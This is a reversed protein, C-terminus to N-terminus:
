PHPAYHHFPAVPVKFPLLCDELGAAVEAGRRLAVELAAGPTLRKLTALMRLRGAAGACMSGCSHACDRMFRCMWPRVTGGPVCVLGTVSAMMCCRVAAMTHCLTLTVRAHALFPADM